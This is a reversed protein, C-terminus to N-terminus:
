GEDLQGGLNSVMFVSAIATAPRDPGTMVAAVKPHM